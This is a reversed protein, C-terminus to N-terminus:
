LEEGAPLSSFGRVIGYSSQTMMAIDTWARPPRKDAVGLRATSSCRAAGKSPYQHHYQTQIFM